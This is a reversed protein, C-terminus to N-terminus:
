NVQTSTGNAFFMILSTFILKRFMEVLEWWWIRDQYKSYLFGYRGLCRPTQLVLRRHNSWLILFFLLPIGVTYVCFAGVAFGVWAMYQEGACEISLDAWMYRRGPMVQQCHVANFVKKSVPPFFFFCGFLFLHWAKNVFAHRVRQARASKELKGWRWRASQVLLLLGSTIPVAALIFASVIVTGFLSDYFNMPQICDLTAMGLLDFNVWGFWGNIIDVEPWPFQM